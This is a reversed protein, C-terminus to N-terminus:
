LVIAAQANPCETETRDVSVRRMDEGCSNCIYGKKVYYTTVTDKHHGGRYCDVYRIDEGYDEESYYTSTSGCQSCSPARMEVEDAMVTVAMSTCAAAVLLFSMLKKM